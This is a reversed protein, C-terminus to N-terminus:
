SSTTLSFIKPLAPYSALRAAGSYPRLSHIELAYQHPYQHHWPIAYHSAEAEATSPKARHAFWHTLSPRM